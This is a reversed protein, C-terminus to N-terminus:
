KLWSVNPIIEFDLDRSIRYVCLNLLFWYKFNDTNQVKLNQLLLAPGLVPLNKM